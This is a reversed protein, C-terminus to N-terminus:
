QFVPQLSQVRIVQSISENQYGLHQNVLLVRERLFAVCKLLRIRRCSLFGWYREDMENRAKSKIFYQDVLTVYAIRYYYLSCSEALFIMRKRHSLICRSNQVSIHIAIVPSYDKKYNYSNTAFTSHEFFYYIEAALRFLQSNKELSSSTVRAIPKSIERRDLNTPSFAYQM